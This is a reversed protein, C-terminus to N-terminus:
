MQYYVWRDQGKWQIRTIVLIVVFLLVTQAAAYSYRNYM